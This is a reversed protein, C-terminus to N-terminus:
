QHYRVRIGIIRRFTRDAPVFDDGGVADPLFVAEHGSITEKGDLGALISEALSNAQTWTDATIVITIPEEPYQAAGALLAEDRRVGSTLVIHPRTEGQPATAYHVRSGALSVVDPLLSIAQHVITAGSM